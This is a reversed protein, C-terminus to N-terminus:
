NARTLIGVLQKTVVDPAADADIDTLVGQHTYYEVLVKTRRRYADL